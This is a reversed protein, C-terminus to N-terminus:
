SEDIDEGIKPVIEAKDWDLWYNKKTMTHLPIDYIAGNGDKNMRSTSYSEFFRLEIDMIDRLSQIFSMLVRNIVWEGDHVFKGDVYIEGWDDVVRILIKM